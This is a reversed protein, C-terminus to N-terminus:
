GENKGVESVIRTIRSAIAHLVGALHTSTGGDHNTQQMTVAKHQFEVQAQLMQQRQTRQEKLLM